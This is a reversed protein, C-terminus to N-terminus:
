RRKINYVEVLRSAAIRVTGADQGQTMYHRLTLRLPWWPSQGGRNFDEPECHVPVAHRAGGAEGVLSFGDYPGALLRDGILIQSEQKPRLQEKNEDTVKTDTLVRGSFGDDARWILVEREKGFLRLQQLNEASLEPSVGPFPKSSLNWKEQKYRGWVVGDDCYALLWQTGAAEEITADQDGVWNLLALTQSKSFPTLMCGSLESM